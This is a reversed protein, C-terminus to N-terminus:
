KLNAIGSRTPLGPATSLPFGQSFDNESEPMKKVTLDETFRSATTAAQEGANKASQYLRIVSDLIPPVEGRLLAAILIPRELVSIGTLATRGRTQTEGYWVIAEYGDGLSSLDYLGNWLGTFAEGTFPDKFWRSDIGLAQKLSIPYHQNKFLDVMQTGEQSLYQILEVTESVALANEVRVAIRQKAKTSARVFDPKRQLLAFIEDFRSPEAALLSLLEPTGMDEVRKDVELKFSTPFAVSAPAAAAVTPEIVVYRRLFAVLADALAAKNKRTVGNVKGLAAEIEPLSLALIEEATKGNFVDAISDIAADSLEPQVNPSFSSIVDNILIMISIKGFLRYHKLTFVSM